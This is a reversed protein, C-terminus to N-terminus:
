VTMISGEDMGQITQEYIIAKRPDCNSVDSIDIRERHNKFIIKKAM